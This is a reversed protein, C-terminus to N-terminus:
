KSRELPTRALRQYLEPEDDTFVVRFGPKPARDDEGRRSKLRRDAVSIRSLEPDSYPVWVPALENMPGMELLLEGSADPSDKPQELFRGEVALQLEARHPLHGGAWVAFAQAADYSVWAPSTQGKSDSETLAAHTDRGTETLFRSYEANTVLHDLIRIAPVVVVGQKYRREGRPVPVCAELLEARPSHIEVKLEPPWGEPVFFISEMGLRDAGAKWARLRYTGPVLLDVNPTSRFTFVSIPDPIEL